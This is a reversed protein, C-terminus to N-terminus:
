YDLAYPLYVISIDEALISCLFNLNMQLSFCLPCGYILFITIITHPDVYNTYYSNMFLFV